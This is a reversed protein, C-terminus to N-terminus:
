RNEVIDLNNAKYLERINESFRRWREVETEEKEPLRHLHPAIHPSDHRILAYKRGPVYTKAMGRIMDENFKPCREFAFIRADSQREGFNRLPTWREYGDKDPMFAEVIYGEGENTVQFRM